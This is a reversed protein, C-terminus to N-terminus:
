RKNNKGRKIDYNKKGRNAINNEYICVSEFFFYLFFNKTRLIDFFRNGCSGKMYIYNEYIYINSSKFIFKM